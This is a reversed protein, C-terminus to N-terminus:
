GLNFGFVIVRVKATTLDATADAVLMELVTDATYLKGASAYTGAGMFMGATTLVQGDVWGDPDTDGIDVAVTAEADIVELAVGTVFTNAPIKILEVSETQAVNLRAGEFINEFVVAAPFSPANAGGSRTVKAGTDPYTDFDAM